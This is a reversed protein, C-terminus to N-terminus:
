AAMEVILNALEATTGLPQGLHLKVNPSNQQTVHVQQAIAETIGGAFLFYPLIAIHRHGATALAQIQHQLSPAVSWYATVARLQCALNEVLIKSRPRRSGHSLLIRAEIAPDLQQALLNLLGPQSGLYPCLELKADVLPQAQTVERPIDEQVHVGPLLFLPLIKVQGIGQGQAQQAFREISQHLPLSLELTATGVLPRAKDLVATTSFHRLSRFSTSSSRLRQYVLQALREVAM